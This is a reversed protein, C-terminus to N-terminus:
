EQVGADELAEDPEEFIKLRCAKGDRFTWVHAIQNDLRIGSGKGRGRVRVIAIVEGGPAQLYREGEFSLDEFAEELEGLVERFASPGRFVGATDVISSAQQLEFDPALFELDLEGTRRFAEMRTRVRELNEQSM